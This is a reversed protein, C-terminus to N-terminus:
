PVYCIDRATQAIEMGLLVGKDVLRFAFTLNTVDNNGPLSRRRRRSASCLANDDAGYVYIVAQTYRQSTVDDFLSKPYGSGVVM